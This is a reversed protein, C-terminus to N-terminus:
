PLEKGLWIEVDVGVRAAQEPTMPEMRQDRPMEEAIMLAARLFGERYYIVTRPLRERTSSANVVEVRMGMQRELDLRRVDTLLVSVRSALGPHDTANVIAVQVLTPRSLWPALYTRPEEYDAPMAAGAGSPVPASQQAGAATSWLLLAVLWLAAILLGPILPRIDREHPDRDTFM